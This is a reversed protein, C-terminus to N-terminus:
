NRKFCLVETATTYFEHEEVAEWEEWARCFRKADEQTVLGKEVLLKRHPEAMINTLTNHYTLSETVIINEEKIGAERAWQLKYKSVEPTSGLHTLWKFRMPMMEHIIPSDPNVDTVAQPTWEDSPDRTAVVGGPKCVRIFERFAQVPNRLHFLAMHSHVVDFSNDPFQSLDEANGVAFSLNAAQSKYKSEAQSVVGESMDLGLTHGESFILALDKTISGPGSGVDLIDFHPKLYPILYAACTQATRYDYLKTVNPADSKLHGSQYSM